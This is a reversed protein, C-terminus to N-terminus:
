IMDSPFLNQLIMFTDKNYNLNKREMLQFAFDPNPFHDPLDRTDEMFHM